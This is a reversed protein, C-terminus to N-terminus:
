GGFLIINNIIVNKSEEAIINAHPFEKKIANVFYDNLELDAESLLDNISKHKISKHEKFFIDKSSLVLHKLYEEM